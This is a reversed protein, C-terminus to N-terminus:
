SLTRADTWILVTLITPSRRSTANPRLMPITWHGVFTGILVGACLVATVRWDSGFAKRVWSPRDIAACAAGGILVTMFTYGLWPADSVIGAILAILLILGIVALCGVGARVPSIAEDM